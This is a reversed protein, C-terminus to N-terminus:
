KYADLASVIAANNGREAYTRATWGSNNKLDTNAGAELLVKVIETQGEYSAAMLATSGGMPGSYQERINVQAGKEILFKVLQLNGGSGAAFILPTFGYENTANIDAGMETIVKATSYDGNQCAALLVANADPGKLGKFKNRLEKEAIVEQNPSLSAIGGLQTEQKGVVTRQSETPSGNQERIVQGLAGLILLALFVKVGTSMGGAPYRKGCYPCLKASTSIENGCEKCKEMAM